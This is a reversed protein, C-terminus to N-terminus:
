EGSNGIAAMITQDADFGVGKVFHYILFREGLSTGSEAFIAQTVGTIMSFYGKYQRYLGNGFPKSVEGDYAGRLISYVEDKSNRPMQLVETFDKLIFTKGILNPILSPDKGGPLQFGSVLSHPTVTSRIECTSCQSLSMLLETKGSGPPGAIHIWLPDGELQNSYAVAFVVKLADEMEVTMYLHEKYISVVESFTPRVSDSLAPLAGYIDAVPTDDVCDQDDFDTNMEHLVQITGDSARFDRIDFKNPLAQPWDIHTVSSVVDKIKTFARKKGKRGAEDNDYALVVERDKFHHIWGEKFVGSGPVALVVDDLGAERLLIKLAIYDWEGEVVWIRAKSSATMLGHLGILGVECGTLNKVKSGIRYFRMNVYSQSHNIVPFWWRVGDWVLGAEKLDEVPLGRDASLTEWLIDMDYDIMRDRTYEYMKAIYTYLNGEIGCLAHKCQWQQTTTNVYFKNERGCIPCTGYVENNSAGSPVFGLDEFPKLKPDDNSYKSNRKVM